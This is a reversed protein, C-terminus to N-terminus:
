ALLGDLNHKESRYVAITEDAVNMNTNSELNQFWGDATHLLLVAPTGLHQPTAEQEPPDTPSIAPTYTYICMYLHVYVHVYIM